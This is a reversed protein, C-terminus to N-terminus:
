IASEEHENEDVTELRDRGREKALYLARDAREMAQAFDADKESVM